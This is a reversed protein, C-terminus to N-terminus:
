GCQLPVDARSRMRVAHGASLSMEVLETVEAARACNRPRYVQREFVKGVEPPIVVDEVEDGLGDLAWLCSLTSAVSEGLQAGRM